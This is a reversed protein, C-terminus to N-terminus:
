TPKQFVTELLADTFFLMLIYVITLPWLASPIVAIIFLFWRNSTDNLGDYYMIPGMLVFLLLCFFFYLGFFLIDFIIWFRKWGKKIQRKQEEMHEGEIM